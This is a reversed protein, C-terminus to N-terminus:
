PLAQLAGRRLLSTFYRRYYAAASAGNAAVDFIRWGEPSWYFRFELRMMMGELPVIRATVSVENPSRGRRPPYIDVHPLPRTFSGLNRALASLFLDTLRVVLAARQAESMRRYYPGAAWRSMYAFDFYPAIERDLFARVVERKAPEARELFRTLRGLGQRLVQDPAPPAPPYDDRYAIGARPMQGSTQAAAGTLLCLGTVLVWAGRLWAGRFWPRRVSM